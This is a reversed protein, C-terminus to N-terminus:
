GVADLFEKLVRGLVIPQEVPALHGADPITTFQANPIADAMRRTEELPILRDDSGAVVLTPVRIEGLLAHSDRRDMM